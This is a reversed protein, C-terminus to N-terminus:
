DRRSMLLPLDAPDLNSGSIVTAVHRGDFRDPDAAIAALGAAGAPESVLGAHVHLACMADILAPESVEVVDGVVDRMDDVAEPIPVRVALGDAITDVTDHVVVGVPVSQRWSDRM